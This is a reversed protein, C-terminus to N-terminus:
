WSKRNRCEAYKGTAVIVSGLDRGTIVAECWWPALLSSWRRPAAHHTLTLRVMIILLLKYLTASRRRQQCRYQSRRALSLFHNPGATSPQHKQPDRRHTGLWCNKAYIGGLYPVERDTQPWTRHRTHNWCKTRSPPNTISSHIFQAVQTINSMPLKSLPSKILKTFHEFCYDTVIAFMSM